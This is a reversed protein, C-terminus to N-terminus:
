CTRRKRSLFGLAAKAKKDNRCSAEKRRADKEHRAVWHEVLQSPGTATVAVQQSASLMKEKRSLFCLAATAKRQLQWRSPKYQEARDKLCLGALATICPQMTALTERLTGEARQQELQM